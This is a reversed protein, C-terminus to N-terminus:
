LQRIRMADLDIRLPRRRGCKWCQEGGLYLPRKCRCPPAVTPRDSYYPSIM